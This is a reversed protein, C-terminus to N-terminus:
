TAEKSKTKPETDYGKNLNQDNIRPFVQGVSDYGIVGDEYILGM